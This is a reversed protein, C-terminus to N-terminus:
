ASLLEVFPGVDLLNIVGDQNIDAEPIYLGSSVADVFPAVDLLNVVGDGNVDGLIIMQNTTAAWFGGILAFGGGTSITGVDHQGITGDVEFSGGICMGGGSDITHWTLDFPQADVTSTCAAAAFLCAVSTAAIRIFNM